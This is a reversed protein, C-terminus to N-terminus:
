SNNNTNKSRSFLAMFFSFLIIKVSLGLIYKSLIFEPKSYVKLFFDFLISISGFVVAYAIFKSWSFNDLVKKM